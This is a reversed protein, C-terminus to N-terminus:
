MLLKTTYLPTGTSTTLLICAIGESKYSYKGKHGPIATGIKTLDTTYYHKNNKVYRYLPSFSPTVACEGTCYLVAALLLLVLAKM